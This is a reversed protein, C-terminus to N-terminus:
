VHARGIKLTVMEDSTAATKVSVMCGTDKEFGTVWDYGKDSDGREIYGPWAVINVAGEGAGVATMEQALVAGNMAVAITLAAGIRLISTM